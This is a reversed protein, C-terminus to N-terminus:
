HGWRPPHSLASQVWRLSRFGQKVDFDNRNILKRVEVSVPRSVSALARRAEVEPTLCTLGPVGVTENVNDAPKHQAVAGTAFIVAAALVLLSLFKM